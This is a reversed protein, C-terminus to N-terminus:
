IEPLFLIANPALYEETFLVPQCATVPCIWELAEIVDFAADSPHQSQARVGAVHRAAPSDPPHESAAFKNILPVFAVNSSLVLRKCQV